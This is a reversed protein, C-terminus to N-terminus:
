RTAAIQRLSAILLAIPAVFPKARMLRACVNLKAQIGPAAM